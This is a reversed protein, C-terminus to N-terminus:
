MVRQKFFYTFLEEADHPGPRSEPHFQVSLIKRAISNIGACTQDTLNIHSQEVDSPLTKGDVAYGHNQSTIYIKNLMNDQIPHNAGRHGFRLKYTKAGLALALLQHGMCIGFIPIVGILNKITSTAVQVDSPDGPGNTLIVAQPKYDLIEKIDSRSSFIKVESSYKQTLRIINKKSGFDLVATRPGKSDLGPLEQNKKVTTEFVWDKNEKKKKEILVRATQEAEQEMKGQVIAGWTTGQKRLLLTLERTDFSHMLPVQAKKLRQSWSSDRSSQQIELCCFGSIFLRSSEWVEDNIGYNGQHPSTMVVIQNFYSPDTAIEEYGFHSTNFVVEGATPIECYGQGKFIQGTELILFLDNM